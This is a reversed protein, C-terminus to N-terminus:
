KGSYKAMWAEISNFLVITMNLGHSVLSQSLCERDLAREDIIDLVPARYLSPKMTVSSPFASSPAVGNGGKGAGSGVIGRVDNM